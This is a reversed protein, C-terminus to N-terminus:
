LCKRSEKRIVSHMLFTLSCLVQMFEKHTAFQLRVICNPYFASTVSESQPTFKGKCIRMTHRSCAYSSMSNRLRLHRHLSEASWAFEGLARFWQATCFAAALSIAPCSCAAPSCSLGTLPAYINATTSIAIKNKIHSCTCRM